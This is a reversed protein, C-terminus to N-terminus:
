FKRGGGGHSVGGSSRHRGSSSGGSSKQEYYGHIVEHRCGMYVTNRDHVKFNSGIYREATTKKNAASHKILLIITIIAAIGASILLTTLSFSLAGLIPNEHKEIEECIFSSMKEFCTYYEGNSAHTYARDLATDIDNGSIHDICKGVTDIYIIRNDMDIMFMVGDPRFHNADYYDNSYDMSSKGQADNTTLFIVSIDYKEYKEAFDRLTDEENTSLLDAFDFVTEPNLSDAAYVKDPPTIFLTLTFLILLLNRILKRM